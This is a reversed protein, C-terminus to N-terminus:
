TYITGYLVITMKYLADNKIKYFQTKGYGLEGCIVRVKLKDFYFKIIVDKELPTLVELGKDIWAVERKAIKLNKKLEEIEVIKGVLIDESKVTGGGGPVSDTTAGKLLYKSEELYEIREALNKVANVRRPYDRLKYELERDWKM